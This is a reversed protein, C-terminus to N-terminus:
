KLRKEILDRNTGNFLMDITTLWNEDMPFLQLGKVNEYEVIKNNAQRERDIVYIKKALIYIDKDKVFDHSITIGHSALFKGILKKLKNTM